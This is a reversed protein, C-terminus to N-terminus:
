RKSRRSRLSAEEKLKEKHAEKEAQIEDYRPTAFMLIEEPTMQDLVSEPRFLQEVPVEAVQPKVEKNISKPPVDTPWQPPKKKVRTAKFKIRINGWTLEDVNMQNARDIVKLVDDVLTPTQILELNSDYARLEGEFKSM